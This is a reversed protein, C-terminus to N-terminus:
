GEPQEFRCEGDHFRGMVCRLGRYGGGAPLYTQCQTDLAHEVHQVIDRTFGLAIQPHVAHPDSVREKAYARGKEAIAKLTSHYLDAKNRMFEITKQMADIKSRLTTVTASPVIRIRVIKKGGLANKSRLEEVKKKAEDRTTFRQARKRNSTEMPYADDEIFYHYVGEKTLFVKERIVWEYRPTEAM